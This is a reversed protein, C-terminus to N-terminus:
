INGTKDIFHPECLFTEGRKRNRVLQLIETHLHRISSLLQKEVEIFTQDDSIKEGNDGTDASQSGQSSKKIFKKKEIGGGSDYYELVLVKEAIILTRSAMNRVKSNKGSQMDYIETIQTAITNQTEDGSSLILNEKRKTKIEDAWVLEIMVKSLKDRRCNYTYVVQKGFIEYSSILGDPRGRPCFNILRSKGCLEVWEKLASKNTAHYIEHFSQKRPLRVRRVLGDNRSNKGFCEIILFPNLFQSDEFHIIKKELGQTQLGKSYLEIKVHDYFFARCGSHLYTTLVAEDDGVSLNKVWSMPPDFPLRGDSPNSNSHQQNDAFIAEWGHEPNLSSFQFRPVIADVRGAKTNVWYNEDNWVAFVNFYPCSSIDYRQGTSPEIFYDAKEQPLSRKNSRILVWCHVKKEGNKSCAKLANQDDSNDRLCMRELLVYFTDKLSDESEDDFVSIARKVEQIEDSSFYSEYEFRVKSRDRNCLWEPAEGYVVYADYGLGLLFSTLVMAFDFCDGAGWDLVQFPSPIFKPPNRPDELPEYELYNAVFSACQHCGYVEPYPLLTPKLTSCVCKTLGFENTALVIVRDRMEPRKKLFNIVYDNAIAECIKEYQSNEQHCHVKSEQLKQIRRRKTSLRGEFSVNPLGSHDSIELPM